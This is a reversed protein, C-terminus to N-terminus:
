NLTPIVAPLRFHLFVAFSCCVKFAGSHPDLTVHINHAFNTPASIEPKHKGKDKDKDKKSHAQGDASASSTSSRTGSGTASGRSNRSDGGASASAFASAAFTASNTNPHRMSGSCGTSSSSAHAGTYGTHPEVHSSHPDTHTCATATTARTPQSRAGNAALTICDGVSSERLM